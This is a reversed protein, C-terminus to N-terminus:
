LFSGGANQNPPSPENDIPPSFEVGESPKEFSPPTHCGKSSHHGDDADSDSIRGKINSPSEAPSNATSWGRVPTHPPTSFVEEKHSTQQLSVEPLDSIVVEPQRDGGGEHQIEELFELVVDDAVDEYGLLALQKKVDDLSVGPSIAM